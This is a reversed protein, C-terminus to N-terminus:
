EWRVMGTGMVVTYYEKEQHVVEQVKQYFEEKEEDEAAATPTYVQIIVTKVKKEVRLRMLCIRETVGKIEEVNGWMRGNIYFGVGKQGSTEGFYYLYNGNKRQVLRKGKRRVEAPGIVDWKIANCATELEYLREESSLSRCLAFYEM